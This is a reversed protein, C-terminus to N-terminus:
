TAVKKQFFSNKPGTAVISLIIKSNRVELLIGATIRGQKESIL